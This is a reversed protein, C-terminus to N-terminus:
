ESKNNLLTPKDRVHDVICYFGFHDPGPNRLQHPTNPPIFAIDKPSLEHWQNDIRVEGTGRAGIVLHIHSHTEFSSNSGPAIEFYRVDFGAKGQEPIFLETRTISEYHTDDKKYPIKDIGHWAGSGAHKIIGGRCAPSSRESEDEICPLGKKDPWRGSDKMPITQSLIELLERTAKELGKKHLYISGGILLMVDEGYFERVHAAKSLSIGGAPVPMAPKFKGKYDDRLGKAINMCEEPTFTFRGGADPYIVMDAGLLRLITGLLLGPRFGHLKDAFFAGSFAPHAMWLVPYKERLSRFCDLGILFPSVLFGKVGENVAVAIREELEEHPGTINPLYISGSGSRKIARQVERVRRAFPCTEQDAIGHDDKIFPVGAKAFKGAMRALGDCSIGVPKLVSCLLAGSRVESAKRIGEIGYGPGPFLALIEEPLTMDEILLGRKLSVNGFLLNFFQPIDRGVLISSFAIRLRYRVLGDPLECLPILALIDPISSGAVEPDKVANRPLEVSQELAVAEAQEEADQAPCTLIYDIILGKEM